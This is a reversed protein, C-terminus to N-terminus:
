RKRRREQGRGMETEIDRLCWEHINLEISSTACTNRAEWEQFLSNPSNISVIM